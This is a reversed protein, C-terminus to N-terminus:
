RRCFEEIVAIIALNTGNKCQSNTRGHSCIQSGNCYKCRTKQREHSCYGPKLKISQDYHNYILIRYCVKM